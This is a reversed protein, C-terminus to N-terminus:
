QTVGIAANRMEKSVQPTHGTKHGPRREDPQPKTVEGRARQMAATITQEQPHVYRKTTNMNSHGALYALTWPDMHPAWRTLCTHRLTYLEFPELAADDNRTEQRVLRTAEAIAKPHQKKLTSPEIHGSKTYAPFVWTSGPSRELRMELMAKVRPTMPIRRRANETKGYLVELNGDTVNERRLRFCEEPRLGCDLLIMAVERLLVPDAYQEMAESAAGRFYLDEEHATLVRERHREGPLMSVKPLAREVRRWEEALTFMRRLVQLERNISAVQMKRGRKGKAELRRKVYEGILDTTIEDLKENALREHKLLNKAGNEYYLLTKPKGALTSRAFPLFDNEAFQKLKPVPKKERLGVEGKALSVRHASEIQRAVNSNSQRTSERILQGRWTFKYWYVNGRKYISM